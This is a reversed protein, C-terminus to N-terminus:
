LNRENVLQSRGLVQPRHREIFTMREGLRDDVGDALGQQHEVLIQADDGCVAREIQCEPHLTLVHLTKGHVRQAIALPVDRFQARQQGVDGRLMGDHIRELDLPVEGDDPPADHQEVRALQEVLLIAVGRDEQGDLVDGLPTGHLTFQLRQQLLLVHQKLFHLVPHAVAQLDDGADKEDLGARHAVLLRPQMKVIRVLADHRNGGHLLLKSAPL